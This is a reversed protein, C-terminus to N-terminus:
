HLETLCIRKRTYLVDLMNVTNLNTQLYFDIFERFDLFNTWNRGEFTRKKQSVKRPPMESMEMPLTVVIWSVINRPPKTTTTESITPIKMVQRTFYHTSQPKSLSTFKRYINNDCGERSAHISVQLYNM